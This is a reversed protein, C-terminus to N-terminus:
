VMMREFSHSSEGKTEVDNSITGFHNVRWFDLKFVRCAELGTTGLKYGKKILEYLEGDGQHLRLRRRGSLNAPTKSRLRKRTIVVPDAGRCWPAFSGPFRFRFLSRCRPQHPQTLNPSTTLTTALKIDSEHTKIDTETMEEKSSVDVYKGSGVVFPTHRALTEKREKLTFQVM